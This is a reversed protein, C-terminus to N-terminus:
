DLMIKKLDNLPKIMEEVTKEVNSLRKDIELSFSKLLNLNNVIEDFFSSAEDNNVSEKGNLSEKSM